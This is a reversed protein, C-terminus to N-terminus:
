SASHSPKDTEGVYKYFIRVIQSPVGDPAQRGGIEIRDILSELLDRDVEDTASKEKILSIWKSIDNVKSEVERLLEQMSSLRKEM